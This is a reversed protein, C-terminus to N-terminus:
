SAIARRTQGLLAEVRMLLHEPGRLGDVFGDAQRRAPHVLSGGVHVVMVPRSPFSEKLEAVVLKAESAPVTHCVIVLDIRRAESLRVADLPTSVPLFEYGADELVQGRSDALNEDYGFHLIAPMQPLM